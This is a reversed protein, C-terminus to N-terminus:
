LSFIQKLSDCQLMNTDCLDNKHCASRCRTGNCILCKGASYRQAEDRPRWRSDQNQLVRGRWHASSCTTTHEGNMTQLDKMQVFIVAYSPLKNGENFLCLCRLTFSPPRQDHVPVYRSLPTKLPFPRCGSRATSRSNTQSTTYYEIEAFAQTKCCNSKDRVFLLLPVWITPMEILWLGAHKTKNDAAKMVLDRVPLYHLEDGAELSSDEKERRVRLM